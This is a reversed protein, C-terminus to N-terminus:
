KRYKKLTNPKKILEDQRWVDNMDVSDVIYKEVDGQMRSGAVDPMEVRQREIQSHIDKQVFTKLRRMEDMGGIADIRREEQEYLTPGYKITDEIEEKKETERMSARREQRAEKTLDELSRSEIEASKLTHAPIDVVSRSSESIEIDEPEEIKEKREKKEKEPKNNKAPINLKKKKLLRELAEETEINSM